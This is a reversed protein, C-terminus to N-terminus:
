HYGWIDLSTVVITAVPLDFLRGLVSSGLLTYPVLESIILLQLCYESLVICLALPPLPIESAFAVLLSELSQMLCQLTLSVVFVLTVTVKGM